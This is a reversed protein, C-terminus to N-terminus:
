NESLQGQANCVLINIGKVDAIGAGIASAIWRWAIKNCNHFIDYTAISSMPPLNPLTDMFITKNSITV